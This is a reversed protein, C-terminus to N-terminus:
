VLIMLLVTYAQRVGVNLEPALLLRPLLVEDKFGTLVAKL